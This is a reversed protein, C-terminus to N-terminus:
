ASEVVADMPTEVVATERVGAEGEDNCSLGDVL